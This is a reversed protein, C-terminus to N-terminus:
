KLENTLKIILKGEETQKFLDMESDQLFYQFLSAECEFSRKFNQYADSTHGLLADCCALNYWLSGISDDKKIGLLYMEKALELNRDIDKYLIGLNLYAFIYGDFKEIEELLYKKALDYKGIKSYVVGLNFCVFKITPDIGYAIQAHELAKDYHHELEYIAGLNIHAWTFNPEISIAKLYHYKAKEYEHMDGYINALFFYATFYEPDYKIAELYYEIAELPKNMEECNIALGYYGSAYTQDMSLIDSFVDFSQVYDKREFYILAVKSMVELDHHILLAKLFHTLAIDFENNEYAINGRSVLEDYNMIIM